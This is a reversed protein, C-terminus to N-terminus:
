AELLDLLHGENNILQHEKRTSKARNQATRFASPQNNQTQSDKWYGFQDEGLDEDSAEPTTFTASDTV